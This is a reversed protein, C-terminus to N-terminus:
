YCDALRTTLQYNTQVTVKSASPEQDAPPKRIRRAKEASYTHSGVVEVSAVILVDLESTSWSYHLRSLEVKSNPRNSSM